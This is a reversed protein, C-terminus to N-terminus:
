PREAHALRPTTDSSKTHEAHKQFAPRGSAFAALKGNESTLHAYNGARNRNEQSCVSNEASLELQLCKQAITCYIWPIPLSRAHNHTFM